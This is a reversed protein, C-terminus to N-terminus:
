SPPALRRLLTSAALLALCGLLYILLGATQHWVSQTARGVGLGVAAVVTLVVRLLNGGLAIPLVCSILLLRRALTREVYYALLVALPLLTVLSTVGSCADAVFLSEGTPLQLVNGQQGVPIGVGHLIAVAVSSVVLRLGAIVPLLWAEPPPVMFLLFGIPFRLARLRHPGWVLLVSAAVAGVFAVGELAVLGAGLGLGYLVLAGLLCLLGRGDRRPASGAWTARDRWAVWLAVVPVLYGYTLYDVSGWVRAMAAVAPAFVAGVVAVLLVDQVSASPRVGKANTEAM